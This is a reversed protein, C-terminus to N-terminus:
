GSQLRRTKTVLVIMGVIVADTILGYIPRVYLASAPTGILTICSFVYAITGLLWPEASESGPEQRVKLLIMATAFVDIVVTLWIAIVNSKTLAWIQM